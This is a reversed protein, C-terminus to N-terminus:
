EDEKWIRDIRIILKSYKHSQSKSYVYDGIKYHRNENVVTQEYFLRNEVFTDLPVIQKYNGITNSCLLNREIVTTQAIAKVHKNQCIYIEGLNNAKNETLIKRYKSYDDIYLIHCSGRIKEIPIRQCKRYLVVEKPISKEDITSETNTRCIFETGTLYIQTEHNEFSEICVIFPETREDEIYVCDGIKLISNKIWIHTKRCLETELQEENYLLAPSKFLRGNECLTDRRQIYYYQM